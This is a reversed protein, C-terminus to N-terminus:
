ESEEVTLDVGQSRIWPVLKTEFCQGCMDVSLTTTFRNEPYWEGKEYSIKVDEVDYVGGDGLKKGCFDCSTYDEVEKTEAPVEITKMHKM